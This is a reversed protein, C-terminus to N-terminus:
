AKGMLLHKHLAPKGFFRRRTFRMCRALLAGHGLHRHRGRLLTAVALLGAGALVNNIGMARLAVDNVDSAQVLTKSMPQPLRRWVTSNVAKIHDRKLVLALVGKALLVGGLVWGFVRM